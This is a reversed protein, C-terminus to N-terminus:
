NFIIKYKRIKDFLQSTFVFVFELFSCRWLYLVLGLICFWLGFVLLIGFWIDCLRHIMYHTWYLSLDFTQLVSLWLGSFIRHSVKQENWGCYRVWQPTSRWPASLRLRLYVSTSCSTASTQTLSCVGHYESLRRLDGVLPHLAASARQEVRGRPARTPGVTLSSRPRPDLRSLLIEELYTQLRGQTLREHM